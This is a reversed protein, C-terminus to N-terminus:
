WRGSMFTRKASSNPNIHINPLHCWRPISFSASDSSPLLHIFVLPHVCTARKHVGIGLLQGHSPRRLVPALRRQRTRRAWLIPTYVYTHQVVPVICGIQALPTELRSAQVTTHLVQVGGLRMLHKRQVTQLSSATPQLAESLSMNVNIVADGNM